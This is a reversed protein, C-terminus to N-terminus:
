ARGRIVRWYEDRVDEDVDADVTLRGYLGDAGDQRPGSIWYRDGSEEEYFNAKYGQGGLGHFTKGGYSLSKGSKSFTV